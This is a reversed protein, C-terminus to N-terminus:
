PSFQHMTKEQWLAPYLELSQPPPLLKVAMRLMLLLLSMRRHMAQLDLYIM